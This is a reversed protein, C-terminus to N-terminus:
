CGPKSPQALAKAEGLIIVLKKGRTVATYILNKKLTAYHQMLIPIIVVPYESGQSKHITVAYALTIQDLDTFDYKIERQDFDVTVEQETQDIGKIFGIDGNYIEKDYNNEVHMVKDGVSFNM